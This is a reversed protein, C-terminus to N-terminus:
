VTLLGTMLAPHWVRVCRARGHLNMGTLNSIVQMQPVVGYWDLYTIRWTHAGLGGGITDERTVVVDGTGIFDNEIVVEVFEEFEYSRLSRTAGLGNWVLQFTGNVTGTPSTTNIVVAQVEWLHDSTTSVVQVENVLMTSVGPCSFVLLTLPPLPLSHARPLDSIFGVWLPLRSSKESARTSLPRM